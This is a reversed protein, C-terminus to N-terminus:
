EVCTWFERHSEAWARWADPTPTYWWDMQGEKWPLLAVSKDGSHAPAGAEMLALYQQKTIQVLQM